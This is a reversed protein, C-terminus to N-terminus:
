VRTAQASLIRRHEATDEVPYRDLIAEIELRDTSSLYSSLDEALAKHEAHDARKAALSERASTFPNKM